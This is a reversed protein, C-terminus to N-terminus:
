RRLRRPLPEFNRHEPAKRARVLLEEEDRWRHDLIYVRPDVPRFRNESDLRRVEYHLHPNTSWGTSGVTGLLDGQQVREGARVKIEHLHGFLTVFQSGNRVAVVNGLRWWAVSQRASYRGAFTVQGNATAYVPTGQPAALDIGNHNERGKTFPNRRAGYPSTLVFSDGRLPSIAPTTRVQDQHESEFLQVEDLFTELVRAQERIAAELRATAGIEEAFVSDPAPAPEVPYGGQGMSEQHSVGYALYIKNMRLQLAEATTELEELRARISELREGLRGRTEVMAQYDRHSLLGQIVRPAIWAGHLLFAVFLFVGLGLAVLQRRSLFLYRVGRQINAPHIQIELRPDASSARSPSARHVRAEKQDSPRM